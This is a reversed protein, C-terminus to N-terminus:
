REDDELKKWTVDTPVYILGSIKVDGQLKPGVAGGKM